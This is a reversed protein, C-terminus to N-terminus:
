KNTISEDKKQYTQTNIMLALIIFIVVGRNQSFIADSSSDILLLIIGLLGSIFINKNFDNKKSKILVILTNVYYFIVFIMAILGFIGFQGLVMSWYQDGLFHYENKRMGWIDDIQYHGYVWSYDPGSFYSAFSGFGTGFPFFDSSIIFGYRFLVARSWGLKVAEESFYFLIWDKFIIFLVIPILALVLYVVEKKIKLFLAENYLIFMAIMFFGFYKVRLSILGVILILVLFTKGKKIYFPLLTLFIFAIAFSFRSPHDFFLEISEIGFRYERPFVKFVLDYLLLAILVFFTYIMITKLYPLIDLYDIDKFLIRVGFYVIFAKYFVLMDMLIAKPAIGHPTTLNSVIGLLLIFLLLFAIIRESKLL